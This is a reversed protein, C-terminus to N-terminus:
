MKRCLDYKKKKLIYKTKCIKAFTKSYVKDFQIYKSVIKLNYHLIYAKLANLSQILKNKVKLVTAQQM